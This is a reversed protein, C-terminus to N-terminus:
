TKRLEKHSGVDDEDMTGIMVRTDDALWAREIYTLGWRNRASDSRSIGILGGAVKGM